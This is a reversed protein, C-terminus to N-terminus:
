FYKNERGVTRGIGDGVDTHELLYTKLVSPEIKRLLARDIEKDQSLLIVQRSKDHAWFDLIHERHLSDLRGLPTDVVMPARVGSVQALGAILATAFIQNEGASRDFLIPQGSNGLIRTNGDDSIEIKNVQKKHALKKYVSTMSNALEQVKLPFLEPIIKEIATRVRESKELLARAPSSDDLKKKEREYEAKQSKVRGSTAQLKREEARAEEDLADLENQVSNLDAKLQALTGDRDIGEIKSIKRSLEDIRQTLLFQDNVNNQIEQQGLAISSLFILAERRQSEHLYSHIIEKACDVPPPYFLSAWASEIRKEIATKQKDTLKPVISPGKESYFVSEFEKKRPELALKEAEWAFFKSEAQLQGQLEKLIAPSVLYFPLTGVLMDELSKRKSKLENRLQEREEVFDKVTAIDGCAGGASTLREILASRKGKLIQARSSLDNMKKETEALQHENNKLLEFLNVLQAENVNDIGSRKQVEFNRLRESLARLLVVGLLGELGQKVQEVRNQDALKKVEEGDFFFFPAIHAPVLFNDLLEELHFNNKGDIKPLGPVGKDINRIIAEEEAAWAGSTRFYWKRAIDIAKSSSKNIIVRVMMTDRAERKAEGNFARELFTPYGRIDDLNLGARALHTMSDKGYLCLYLAELISTKGYGNMGGILIINKGLKPEPFFFEQHQYSKFNTLEICSIWM